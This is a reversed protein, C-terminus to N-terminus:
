HSPKSKLIAAPGRGVVRFSGYNLGDLFKATKEWVQINCGVDTQTFVCRMAVATKKVFVSSDIGRGGNLSDGFDSDVIGLSSCM